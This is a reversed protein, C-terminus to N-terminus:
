IGAIKIGKKIISADVFQYKETEHKCHSKKLEKDLENPATVGHRNGDLFIGGHAGFRLSLATPTCPADHLSGLGPLTDTTM